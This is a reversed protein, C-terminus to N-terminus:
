WLFATEQHVSQEQNYGNQHVNQGGTNQAIIEAFFFDV